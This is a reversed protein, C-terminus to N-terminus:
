ILLRVGKAEGVIMICLSLWCLLKEYDLPAAPIGSLQAVREVETNPLFWRNSDIHTRVLTLENASGDVIIRGSQELKLYLSGVLRARLPNTDCAEFQPPVECGVPETGWYRWMTAGNAYGSEWDLYISRFVVQGDLEVTAKSM